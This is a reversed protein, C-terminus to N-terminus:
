SSVMNKLQAAAESFAVAASAENAEGSSPDFIRVLWAAPSRVIAHIDNTVDHVPPNAKHKLDRARLRVKNQIINISFYFDIDLNEADWRLM